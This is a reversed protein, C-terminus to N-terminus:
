LCEIGVVFLSCESREHIHHDRTWETYLVGDMGVPRMM